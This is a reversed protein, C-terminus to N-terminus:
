ITNANAVKAQRVPYGRSLDFSGRRRKLYVRSCSKVGDVLLELLFDHSQFWRLRFRRRWNVLRNKGQRHGVDFRHPRLDGAPLELDLIEPRGIGLDGRGAEPVGGIVRDGEGPGHLGSGLESFQEAEDGDCWGGVPVRDNDRMALCAVARGDDVSDSGLGGGHRARQHLVEQHVDASHM